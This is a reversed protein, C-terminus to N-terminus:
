QCLEKERKDNIYQKTWNVAAKIVMFLNYFSIILYNLNNPNEICVIVWMVIGVIVAFINLYQSDIYRFAALISVTIGWVFALSDLLALAGSFFPKCLYYCPIWLAFTAAVVAIFKTLGLFKLETKKSDRASKKKNWIFFSMYQIPASIAINSLVSFYLGEQWPAVSYLIANTGGVLFAYRNARAVMIQVVLTILTPMTKIFTQKNIIASAIILAATLAMPIYDIFIKKFKSKM